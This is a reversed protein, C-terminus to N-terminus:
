GGPKHSAPDPDFKTWWIGSEYITPTMALGKNVQVTVYANPEDKGSPKMFFRIFCDPAKNCQTKALERAAEWFDTKTPLKDPDLYVNVAYRNGEPLGSISIDRSEISYIGMSPAQEGPTKSFYSAAAFGSVIIVALM